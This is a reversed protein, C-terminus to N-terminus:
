CVKKWDFDFEIHLIKIRSVRLGKGELAERWEQLNYQGSGGSESLGVSLGKCMVHM